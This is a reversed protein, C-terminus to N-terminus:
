VTVSRQSSAFVLSRALARVRTQSRRGLRCRTAGRGTDALIAPLGLTGNTVAPLNLDDRRLPTCGLRHQVAPIRAVPV